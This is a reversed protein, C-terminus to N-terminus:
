LVRKYTNATSSTVFNKCIVESFMIQLDIHFYDSMFLENKIQKFIKQGYNTIWM